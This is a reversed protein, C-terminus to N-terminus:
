ADALRRLAYKLLVGPDAAVSEPAQALETLVVGIESPRYGLSELAARVDATADNPGAVVAPVAVGPTILEPLDFRSELEMMLRAATKPGVGSVLCLADTDRNAVAQRLAAPLHVSLIAMALATGVGHAGLLTEFVQREDSTRFGFLTESDERLSHYVHLFVQGPQCVEGPMFVEGPQLAQHQEPGMAPGMAPSLRPALAAATAPTVQVRYGVGCVEILLETEAIRHLLRGRLSGIM